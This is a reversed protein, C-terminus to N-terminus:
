EKRKYNIKWKLQWSKGGDVSTEWHWSLSNKTIDKFIMRKIVKQGQVEQTETRFMKLNNEFDGYFNFYGGNNDTWAQHWKKNRPNYVSLSMGKYGTQLDEFNEQIVQGDLIKLIKNSGKKTIGQQNTWTLEWDGVWFDFSNADLEQSYSHNILLILFLITIKKM